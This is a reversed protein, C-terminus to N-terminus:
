GTQKPETQHTQPHLAMLEAVTKPRGLLFGQILSCGFQRLFILQADTEVGEAIVQLQMHRGLDLITRVIASRAPARAVWIM